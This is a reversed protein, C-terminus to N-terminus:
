SGAADWSLLNVKVFSTQEERGGSKHKDNWEGDKLFARARDKKAGQRLQSVFYEYVLIHYVPHKM